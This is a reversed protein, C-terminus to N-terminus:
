LSLSKMTKPCLAAYTSQYKWNTPTWASAGLFPLDCITLVRSVLEFPFKHPLKSDSGRASDAAFTHTEVYFRQLATLSYAYRYASIAALVAVALLTTAIAWAHASKPWQGADKKRGWEESV